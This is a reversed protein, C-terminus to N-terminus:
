TFRSGTGGDRGRRGYDPKVSSRQVEEEEETRGNRCAHKWFAIDFKRQLYSRNWFLIEFVCLFMVGSKEFVSNTNGASKALLCFSTNKRM